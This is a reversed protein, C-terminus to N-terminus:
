IRGSTILDGNRFRPATMEKDLLDRVTFEGDSIAKTPNAAVLEAKRAPSVKDLDLRWRRARLQVSDNYGSTPDDPPREVTQAEFLPDWDPLADDPFRVIVGMSKESGSWASGDPRMDIPDGQQLQYQEHSAAQTASMFLIEM